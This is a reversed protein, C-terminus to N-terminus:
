VEELSEILVYPMNDGMVMLTNENGGAIGLTGLVVFLLRIFIRKKKRRM